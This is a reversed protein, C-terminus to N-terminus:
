IHFSYYTQLPAWPRALKRVGVDWDVDMSWVIRIHTYITDM